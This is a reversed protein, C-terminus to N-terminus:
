FLALSFAMIIMGTIIGLISHHEKGFKRSAPLLEDLSIYVMVGGVVGLMASLLTPTIFPFLILWTVLAGVPESMGSIFSWKFANRKSGNNIYLPISVAIGEPINHLAIALTLLLGLKIDSLTGIFTAMGEPFNHIFVGLVIFLSTIEIKITRKERGYRHRHRHGHHLHPKYSGNDNALIEISDEFEYKHSVIVDILFMIGMGLFFFLVGFQGISIVSEFLLEVFSIYIMVGASFGMVFSIFKPNPKKVIFAIVSGITTSLGAVLSLLFALLFDDLGFIV